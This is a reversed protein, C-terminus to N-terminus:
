SITKTLVGMGVVIYRAVVCVVSGLTSASGLLLADNVSPGVTVSKPGLPVVCIKPAGAVLCGTSRTCSVSDLPVQDDINAIM